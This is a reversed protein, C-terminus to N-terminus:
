FLSGGNGGNTPRPPTSTGTSSGRESAEDITDLHHNTKQDANWNYYKSMYRYYLFTQIVTFLQQMEKASDVEKSEYKNMSDIFKSAKIESYQKTRNSKKSDHYRIKIVSQNKNPYFRLYATVYSEIQGVNLHLAEKLRDNKLSIQGMLYSSLTQAVVGSTLWIDDQKITMGEKLYGNKVLAKALLNPQYNAWFHEGAAELFTRASTNKSDKSLDETFHSTHAVLFDRKTPQDKAGNTREQGFPKPIEGSGQGRPKEPSSPYKKPSSPFKTPSFDLGGMEVRQARSSIARSIALALNAFQTFGAVFQNALTSLLLTTMDFLLLSAVYVVNASLRLTAIGAWVLLALATLTGSLVYSTIAGLSQVLISLARWILPTVYLVTAALYYAPKDLLWFGLASLAYMTANYSDSFMWLPPKVTSLPFSRLQLKKPTISKMMSEKQQTMSVYNSTNHVCLSQMTLNFLGIM